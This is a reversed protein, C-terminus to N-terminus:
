YYVKLLIALGIGVQVAAAATRVLEYVHWPRSPRWSYAVEGSPPPSTRAVEPDQHGSTSARERLRRRVNARIRVTQDAGEQHREAREADTATPM